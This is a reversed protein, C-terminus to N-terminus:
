VIRKTPLTLHTYSVATTYAATGIEAAECVGRFTPLDRSEGILMVDIARRTANVPAIEFSELHRPIETQAIPGLAGPIDTLNFEIPFEYTVVYRHPQNERIHRIVSSLLTTKGSGMTGAILVLGAPHVIGEMLSPELGLEQTTPPITPISRFIITVGRGRMTQCATANVRFRVRAERSVIVDYSADIDSGHSLMSEAAPLKTVSPLYECIDTNTIPRQTAPVWGGHIRHYAYTEPMLIIDSAGVGHSWQLLADFDSLKWASAKVPESPFTEM